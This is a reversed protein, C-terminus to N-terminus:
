WIVAPCASVAFPAFGIADEVAPAPAAFAALLASLELPSEAVMEAFSKRVKNTVSICFWSGVASVSGFSYMLWSTCTFLRSCNISMLWFRVVAIPLEPLVEVPLVPAVGAPLAVGLTVPALGAAAVVARAEFAPASAAVLLGAEVPGAELLLGPDDVPAAMLLNACDWFAL